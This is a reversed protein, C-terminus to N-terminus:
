GTSLVSVSTIAYYVLQITMGIHSIYFAFLKSDNEQEIDRRLTAIWVTTLYSFILGRYILLAKQGIFTWPSHCVRLFIPHEHPRNGSNNGLLPTNESM